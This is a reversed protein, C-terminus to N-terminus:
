TRSPEPPRLDITPMGNAEAGRKALLLIATAVLAMLPAGVSGSVGFIIPLNAAVM